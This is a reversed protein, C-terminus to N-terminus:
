GPQTVRRVHTLRRRRRRPSTSSTGSTRNAEASTVCTSACTLSHTRSGSRDPRRRAGGPPAAARDEPHGPGDAVHRPRPHVRRPPRRGAAPLRRRGRRHRGARGGPPGPRGAPEVPQEAVRRPRPHVRRPPRRGAAPLTDVAEDIAALADERRGLDALRNSLNNLSRALDPTFADPRAAALQRYVDVAEDIAALADERRGLDALRNSLNNLSAALDPTFADPRDAARQRHHDVAQGTLTAALGALSTSREPLRDVLQAAAAPQPTHHLAQDLLPTLRGAPDALM